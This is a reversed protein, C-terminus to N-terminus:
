KVSIRIMCIILYYLVSRLGMEATCLLGPPSTAPDLMVKGRGIRLATALPSQFFGHILLVELRGLLMPPYAEGVCFELGYPVIVLEGVAM